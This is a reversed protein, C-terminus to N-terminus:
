EHGKVSSPINSPFYVMKICEVEFSDEPLGQEKLWRLPSREDRFVVGQTLHAGLFKDKAKLYYLNPLFRSM